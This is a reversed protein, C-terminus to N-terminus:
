KIAMADDEDTVVWTGSSIEERGRVLEWSADFPLLEPRAKESFPAVWYLSGHARFPSEVVQILALTSDSLREGSLTISDGQVHMPFKRELEAVVRNEAATGYLVVREQQLDALTVETDRKVTISWGGQDMAGSDTVALTRLYDARGIILLGEGPDRLDSLKEPLKRIRLLDGGPDLIVRVPKARSTISFPVDNHYQGLSDTGVMVRTTVTTDSLVAAITVQATFKEYGLLRVRGQTQWGSPVAASKAAYVRLKPVGRRKIWQDFFWGLRQGSCEEAIQQFDQLTATRGTFRQAYFRYLSSFASDGIMRRLMNHVYSAKLYHTPLSRLDAKQQLPLDKGQEVRRLLPRLLPHASLSDRRTMREHREDYLLASYECMGESLFAADQDEIFVTAPWWQHAIEHPLVAAAQNFRDDTVFAMKKMMILGPVAIALVGRGAVWDEVEVINLVPFRYPAFRRGYDALVSTSLTRLARGSASDETFLYSVVQPEESARTFLGACIWGIQPIAQDNEWVFLSSDTTKVTQLLQGVAIAAWGAPVTISLRTFRYAHPGSPFIEEERLVARRENMQTFESQFLLKGSYVIVVDVLSDGALHNVRVTDNLREVSILSGRVWTAEIGYAPPFRLSIADAAPHKRITVTDICRLANDAPFLHLGARCSVIEYADEGGAAPSRLTLLLGILLFFATRPM